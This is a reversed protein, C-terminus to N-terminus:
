RGYDAGRDLVRDESTVHAMGLMTLIVADFTPVWPVDKGARGWAAPYAAECDQRTRPRALAPAAALLLLAAAAAAVRSPRLPRPIRM